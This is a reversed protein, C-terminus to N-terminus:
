FEIGAKRLAEAFAKIRGYYLYGARDFVIKTIGKEKLRQAFIEGFAEAQKVNGFSALGGRLEKNLTSLSLVTKNRTDDIVQTFLNKISRKIVLRPRKSTVGIKLLIRRHRKFKLLDKKNM